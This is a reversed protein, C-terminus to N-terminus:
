NTQPYFQVTEVTPFTPETYNNGSVLSIDKLGPIRFCERGHDKHSVGEGPGFSSTARQRHWRFPLLILATDRWEDNAFGNEAGTNTAYHKNLGSV